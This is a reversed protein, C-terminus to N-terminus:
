DNKGRIGKINYCVKSIRNAPAYPNFSTFKFRLYTFGGENYIEYSFIMSSSQPSQLTCIVPHSDDFYVDLEIPPYDTCIAYEDDLNFTDCLEVMGNSWEILHKTGSDNLVTDSTVDVYPLIYEGTKSNKLIVNKYATM